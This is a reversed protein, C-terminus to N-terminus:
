RCPGETSALRYHGQELDAMEDLLEAAAASQQAFAGDDAGDVVDREGDVFALREPQDALRAAALRRGPRQM